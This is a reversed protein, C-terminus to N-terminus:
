ALEAKRAKLDQEIKVMVDDGLSYFKVALASLFGFGAPIITLMLRIGNQAHVTQEVNPHFGFWALMWGALSGGVLWGVKQSFSAASFVLGTARRGTKWEAYDATDAYFAWLLPSTPAFLMSIVIWIAFVLIIQEKPVFYLAVCLASAITMLGMYARRKGFWKALTGATSTGLIVGVTGLLMFETVLEKYNPVAVYYKFYYLIAGMRVAIHCLAFVGIFCVMIWPRNHMLDKLDGRLANSEGKAPQVRERTGAFTVLFLATGVIGYVVMVMMFGRQDGAQPAMGRGFYKVLPLTLGQVAFLGGYSLVFRYTSVTTRELSNPSIVGMLASYPINIFTYAMMVLTYTVYAYVLRGTADLQPTYFTAVGTVAMPLCGWLLYPRYHGWRTHTRDAIVGMGPDIAADWFRAVFLMTGAAAAGIGFVDTYFFLLFNMFMQFYFNSATDGLGYAVKEQFRIKDSAATAISM